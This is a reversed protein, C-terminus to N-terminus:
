HTDSDQEVENRHTRRIFPRAQIGRRQFLLRSFFRRGSLATAQVLLDLAKEYRGCRAFAPFGAATSAARRPSTTWFNSRVSSLGVDRDMGGFLVTQKWCRSHCCACTRPLPTDRLGFFKPTFIFDINCLTNPWIWTLSHDSILCDHEHKDWTLLRRLHFLVVLVGYWECLESVPWLLACQFLLKDIPNRRSAM